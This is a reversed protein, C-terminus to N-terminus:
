DHDVEVCILVAEVKAKFLRQMGEAREADVIGKVKTFGGEWAFDLAREFLKTGLLGQKAYIESVRLYNEGFQNIPQAWLFGVPEDDKIAVLLLTGPKDFKTFISVLLDDNKDEKGLNSTYEKIIPDLSLVEKKQTIQVIDFM